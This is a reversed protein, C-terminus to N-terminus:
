RFLLAVVIAVFFCVSGLVFFMIRTKTSIKDMVNKTKAWKEKLPKKYAEIRAQQMERQMNALYNSMIDKLTDEYEDQVSELIKMKDVQPTISHRKKVESKVYPTIIKEVVNALKESFKSIVQDAKHKYIHNRLPNRTKLWLIEFISVLLFFFAAIIFYTFLYNDPKKNITIVAGLGVLLAVNSKLIYDEVSSQAKKVEEM